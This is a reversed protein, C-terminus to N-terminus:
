PVSGRQLFPLIATATRFNRWVWQSQSTVTGKSGSLLGWGGVVCDGRGQGLYYSHSLARVKDAPEAKPPTTQHHHTITVNPSGQLGKLQQQLKMLEENLQRYM